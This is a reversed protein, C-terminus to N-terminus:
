RTVFCNGSGADRTCVKNRLMNKKNGDKKSTVDSVPEECRAEIEKSLTEQPTM